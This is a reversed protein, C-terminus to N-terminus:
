KDEDPETKAKTASGRVAKTGGVQAELAAVREELERERQSKNADRARAEAEARDKAAAVEAAAKREAFLVRAKEEDATAYPGLKHVRLGEEDFQQVVGPDTEPVLQGAANVFYLGAENPKTGTAM